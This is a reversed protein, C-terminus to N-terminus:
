LSFVEEKPGLCSESVSQTETYANGLLESFEFVRLRVYSKLKSYSEPHATVVRFTGGGM